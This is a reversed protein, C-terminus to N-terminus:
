TWREARALARPAGPASHLPDGFRVALPHRRPLYFRRGRLAEYTGEIAAPVVPVGARLAVMAAGPRGGM